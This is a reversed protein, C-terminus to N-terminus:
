AEYGCYGKLGCDGQPVIHHLRWINKKRPYRSNEDGEVNVTEHFWQTGPEKPHGMSKEQPEVGEVPEGKRPALPEWIGCKDGLCFAGQNATEAAHMPDVGRQMDLAAAIASAAGFIPCVTEAAEENTKSM